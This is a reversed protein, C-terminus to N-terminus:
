ACRSLFGQRGILARLKVRSRRPQLSNGRSCFISDVLAIIRFMLGNIALIGGDMMLFQETKGRTGTESEATGSSGKEIRSM